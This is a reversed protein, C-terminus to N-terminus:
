AVHQSELKKLYAQVERMWFWLEEDDLALIESPSWHCNV